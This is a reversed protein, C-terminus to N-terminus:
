QQSPQPYMTANVCTRVIYWIYMFSNVKEVMRGWWGEGLEPTTEVHIMKANICTYVNKQVM